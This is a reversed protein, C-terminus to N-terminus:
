FWIRLGGSFINANAYASGSTVNDLGLMDYRKYALDLSVRDKIKITASVGYTFTQMASLRYDASYHDPIPVYDVDGPPLSPDGPLQVAYFDAASQDVFRFMPSIVVHKGLKQFWSLTVTHSLIGYSDHYLRYSLEASGKVPTVYHSFSLFGIQKERHDPRNEVYVTNPDPYGTFRINKYPDSLYGQSTGLILNVTFVTNPGILQTVGVLLDGSNKYEKDGFWFEPMITDYTYALGLALTTNKENFDIAHNLSLGVSEYDGELSYALQPTTTHRGGWLIASSLNGATRVDDMQALPVKNSGAPAPGGTPTAGSIADYVFEGHLSVSPNLGIQFLAGHTQVHIRGSEEQYDEYKYDFHDEGRVRQPLLIPLAAVLTMAMARRNLWPGIRLAGDWYNQYKSKMTMESFSAKAFLTGIPSDMKRTSHVPRIQPKIM